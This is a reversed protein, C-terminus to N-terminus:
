SPEVRSGRTIGLQRTKRYLNAREIGLARAADSMRWQHRELVAAIYDREFRHRADRLSATLDPRAFAGDIPLHMLVDEQRVIPGAQRLLRALLGALEDLNETWPLAALVTLAPQTFTPAPRGDAQPPAVAILATVIEGLDAPRQRLPPITIRDATLRRYLDQRFRGDRVDNALDPSAAAIIRCSVRVPRAAGHVRVEGDRLIRALRRQVAAPLEGITDLFLTGRAAAILFADAGLLELDQAVPRNPPTGFLRREMTAADPANCDLPIFSGDRGGQEHLAEAIEGPRCGPECAILLPRVHRAADDLAARARRVAESQGVLSLPVRAAAAAGGEFRVSNNRM